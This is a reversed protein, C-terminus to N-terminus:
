KLKDNIRATDKIERSQFLDKVQIHPLNDFKNKNKQSDNYQKTIYEKVYRNKVTKCDDSQDTETRFAHSDYPFFGNDLDPYNKDKEKEKDGELHTMFINQNVELTSDDIIV